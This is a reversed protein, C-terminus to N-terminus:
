NGKHAEHCSKCNSASKYQDVAGPSGKELAQTAALLKATKEKWSAADGQPPKATCMMEYGAILQKLEEKTAAGNSAKKCVPDTGKPAKHYKKMFDKIPSGGDAAQSLGVAVGAVLGTVVTLAALKKLITTM